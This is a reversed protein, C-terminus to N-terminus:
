KAARPDVADLIQLEIKDRGGWTDRRLQGAVHIPMGGSNLLLEGLPQDAARFAIADLRSGDSSQLACACMLAALSKPM